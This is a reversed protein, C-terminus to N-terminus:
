NKKLNGGPHRESSLIGTARSFFYTNWIKEFLYKNCLQKQNKTSSVKMRLNRIEVGILLNFPDHQVDKVRLGSVSSIQNEENYIFSLLSCCTLQSYMIPSVQPERLSHNITVFQKILVHMGAAKYIVSRERALRWIIRLLVSIIPHWHQSTWKVSGELM